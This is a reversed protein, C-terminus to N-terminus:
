FLILMFLGAVGLVSLGIICPFTSEDKKEARKIEFSQPPSFKGEYGTSDITSTRIYYVGPEEPKPLVIERRDVHKEVFLNQFGDDRAIQCRYSMKAGQDQWRIRLDKQEISPKELAPSPPPPVLTFSIVDSWIGEYGDQALSRVRFYYSGFDDFIRSYSVDPVDVLGGTVDNFQRDRSIQIQYGAADKVKLWQFSVSRGKFQASDMPEQIFPPLPNTRVRISQPALPFGEIGIEDISQGHLYYTGDDLGRVELPEGASTVSERIVDKGESDTTLRFRYAVAGKVAEFKIFFPMTKYLPQVDLAPPRLLQRPKLPPTGKDVRTGEGEKLMVVQKMAEVDVNGQLIESITTEKPDVSVRFDTGRAVATASPTQIEIRSDRGTARRVKMLVRGLPLILKQFIHTDGKREMRNLGLTTDSRQLFSTGDDFAIEVASERGTRILDGQRVVANPRLEKWSEEGATRVAVDGKVFLVRGDVPVGKLLRVPVILLRGAYILDFNRLRNIRGVEPWKSPDDLYKKCINILNDNKVITLEVVRDDEAHGLIVPFFLLLLISFLAMFWKTKM